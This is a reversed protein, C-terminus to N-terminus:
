KLRDMVTTDQGGDYLSLDSLVDAGHKAVLEEYMRTGPFPACASLQYNRTKSALSYGMAQLEEMDRRHDDKSQGPLDKMMTLHIMLQPFKESLKRLTDKFDTREIGKGIKGLVEVNFTEVGFRM